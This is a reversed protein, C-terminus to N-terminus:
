CSQTGPRRQAALGNGRELYSAATAARLTQSQALAASLSGRALLYALLLICHRNM